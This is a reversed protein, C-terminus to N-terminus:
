SNLLLGSWCFLSGMVMALLHELMASSSAKTSEVITLFFSTSTFSSFTISAIYVASYRCTFASTWCSLDLALIFSQLALLKQSEVWSKKRSSSQANHRACPLHKVAILQGGCM